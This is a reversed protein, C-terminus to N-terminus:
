PVTIRKRVFKDNGLRVEAVYDGAPM